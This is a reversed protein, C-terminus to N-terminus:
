CAAHPGACGAFSQFKALLKGVEGVAADVGMQPDKTSAEFVSASSSAQTTITDM